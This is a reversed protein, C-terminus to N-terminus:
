KMTRLWERMEELTDQTDIDTLEHEDAVQITRVREPYRKTLVNGGKGAPLDALEDFAWRPFLVPAGPVDGCAPRWIYEPTQSFGLAMAALTDEGIMPQDGPCFLCGEISDPMAQIGLRVTDSRLPLEHLIVEAGRAQCYAAVDTHRTVVVRHRFAAAADLVWGIMPQGGLDAMLKNGGFRTGLGSAMVVCGMERIERDLDVVCADQRNLLESLFPIDAKRIVALVRKREMLRLLAECYSQCGTELYGIEDIGVWEQPLRFLNDVAEAGKTSLVATEARMKQETGAAAADFVGIRFPKEGAERMWVSDRPKAWTELVPM